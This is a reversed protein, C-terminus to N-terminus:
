RLRVDVRRAERADAGSTTLAPKDLVLRDPTVGNAELAHRVAIARKKALEANQSADGSADHFGSILVSKSGDARAADAAQALAAQAENSLADSGTEFYVRAEPASADASVVASAPATARVPAAARQTSWIALALVGGIVLAVLGALVMLAYSQAEDGQENM